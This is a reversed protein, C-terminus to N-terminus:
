SEWSDGATLGDLHLARTAHEITMHDPCLPASKYAGATAYRQAPNQCRGAETTALCSTWSTPGQDLVIQSVQYARYCARAEAETAHPPHNPCDGIPHGGDRHLAAFHWGKGREGLDVEVATLTRM